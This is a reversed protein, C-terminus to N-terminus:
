APHQPAPQAPSLAFRDRTVGSWLGVWAEWSMPASAMPTLSGRVEDAGARQVLATWAM